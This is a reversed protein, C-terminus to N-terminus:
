PGPLKLLVTGAHGQIPYSEAVPEDFWVSVRSGAVIESLLLASTRGGAEERLLVTRADLLVSAKDVQGNGTVLITPGDGAQSVQVVTGTISPPDSPLGACATLLLAALALTPLALPGHRM